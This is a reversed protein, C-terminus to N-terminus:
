ELRVSRKKDLKLVQGATWAPIAKPDLLKEGDLQVSGQQILRRLDSGSLTTAFATAYAEGVVGLVDRRESITFNPLEVTALDRKSFMNEWNERAALAAEGSHYRAVLAAALSKKSEM